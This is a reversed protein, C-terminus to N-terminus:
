FVSFYFCIYITFIFAFSSYRVMMQNCEFDVPFIPTQLRIKELARIREMQTSFSNLLEFLIIGIAYIDVKQNYSQRNIQEPSMYLITGGPESNTSHDIKDEGFASVLGFDGIKVTNGMSFLINSPKLDRHILKQSHIYEIGHIIQDFILLAESRSKIMQKMLRHRLSETQCLEM